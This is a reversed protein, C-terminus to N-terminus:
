HSWWTSFNPRKFDGVAKSHLGQRCCNNGSLLMYILRYFIVCRPFKHVLFYCFLCLDCRILSVFPGMWFFLVAHLFLAAHDIICLSLLVTTCLIGYSDPLKLDDVVELMSQRNCLHQISDPPDVVTVEPHLRQYDKLAFIFYLSISLFISLAKFFRDTQAQSLIWGHHVIQTALIKYELYFTCLM